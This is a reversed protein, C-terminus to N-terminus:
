GALFRAHVTDVDPLFDADVRPGGKRAIVVIRHHIAIEGHGLVLQLGHEFRQAFRPDIDHRNVIVHRVFRGADHKQM